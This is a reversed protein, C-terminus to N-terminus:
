CHSVSWHFLFFTCINGLVFSWQWSVSKVSNDLSFSIWVSILQGIQSQGIAIPVAKIVPSWSFCWCVLCYQWGQGLLCKYIQWYNSGSIKISSSLFYANWSTMRTTCRASIYSQNGHLCLQVDCCCVCWIYNNKPFNRVVIQTAVLKWTTTSFDLDLQM